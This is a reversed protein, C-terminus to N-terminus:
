FLVKLVKVSGDSYYQKLINLGKLPKQLRIGNLDYYENYIIELQSKINENKTVYADNYDFNKSKGALHISFDDTGTPSDTSAYGERTGITVSEGNIEVGTIEASLLSYHKSVPFDVVLTDSQGEILVWFVREGKPTDETNSCKVAFNYVGGPLNDIKQLIMGTKKDNYIAADVVPQIDSAISGCVPGSSAPKWVNNEKLEYSNKDESWITDIQNFINYTQWGPFTENNFSWNRSKTYLNPNIIFSTFDITYNVYDGTNVDYKSLLGTQPDIDNNLHAKKYWAKTNSLNIDARIQSDDTIANEAKEIIEIDESNLEIATNVGINIAKALADICGKSNSTIKYQLSIKNSNEAILEDSLDVVDMESYNSYLTQLDEFSQDKAYKTNINENIYIASLNLSSNFSDINNKRIRLVKILNDIENIAETYASITHLTMGKYKDCSQILSELSACSYTTNVCTSILNDAEEFTSKLKEKYYASESPLTIVEVKCLLIECWEQGSNPLQFKIIYDDDSPANFTCVINKADIIKENSNSNQSTINLKDEQSFIVENTSKKIVKCIVKMNLNNPNKWPLAYYTLQIKGSKFPLSYGEVEGYYLEGDVGGVTRMYFARSTIGGEPFSYLRPGSGYASGSNRIAGADAINTWGNPITNAQDLEFKDSFVSESVSSGSDNVGVSFAIEDINSELYEGNVNYIDSIKITYDGNLLVDTNTRALTINKKFNIEDINTVILNESFSSGSLLASIKSLDVEKDYNLSFEKIEIPLEFSLNEPYSSILKPIDENAMTFSNLLKKQDSLTNKNNNEIYSNDLCNTVNRVDNSYVSASFLLGSLLYLQKKM